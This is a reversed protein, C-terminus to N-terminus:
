KKRRILNSLCEIEIRGLPPLMYHEAAVMPGETNFEREM